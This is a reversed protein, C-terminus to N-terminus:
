ESSSVFSIRGQVPPTCVAHIPGVKMLMAKRVLEKSLAVNAGNFTAGFPNSLNVLAVCGLRGTVENEMLRQQMHCVLRLALNENDAIKSRDM